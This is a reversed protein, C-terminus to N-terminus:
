ETKVLLNNFTFTSIVDNDYNRIQLSAQQVDKLVYNNTNWFSISLSLTINPPLDHTYQYIGGLLINPKKFKVGDNDIIYCKDEQECIFIKQPKSSINKIKFISTIQSKNTYIDPASVEIDNMVQTKSNAQTTSTPSQICATCPKEVIKEVIKEVVTVVPVLKEIIIPPPTPLPTSQIIVPPLTPLPTSQVIRTVESTVIQNVPTKQPIFAFGGNAQIIAGIVTGIAGIIAAIIIGIFGIKVAPDRM